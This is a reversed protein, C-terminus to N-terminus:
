GHREFMQEAEEDSARPRSHSSKHMDIFLAQLYIPLVTGEHLTQDQGAVKDDSSVYKLYADTCELVNDVNPQRYLSQPFGGYTKDM